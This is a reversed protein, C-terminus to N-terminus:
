KVQQKILAFLTQAIKGAEVDNPAGPAYQARLVVIWSGAQAVWAGQVGDGDTDWFAVLEPAAAPGSAWPPTHNGKIKLAQRGGAVLQDFIARASQGPREKVLMLHYRIPDSAKYRLDTGARYDCVLSDDNPEISMLLVALGDFTEPCAFGSPKHRLNDNIDLTAPNGTDPIFVQPGKTIKVSAIGSGPDTSQPAAGAAPAAALLLLAFSASLHRHM